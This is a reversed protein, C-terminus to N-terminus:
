LAEGDAGSGAKVGDLLKLFDKIHGKLPLPDCILTGRTWLIEGTDADDLMLLLAGDGPPLGEPTTPERVYFGQLFHFQAATMPRISAKGDIAKQVRELTTCRPKHDAASSVLPAVILAAVGVFATAIRNM